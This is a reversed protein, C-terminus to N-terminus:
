EVDECGMSNNTAGPGNARPASVKRLLGLDLLPQSSASADSTAGAFQRKAHPRGRSALWRVMARANFNAPEGSM